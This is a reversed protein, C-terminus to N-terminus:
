TPLELVWDGCYPDGRMMCKDGPRFVLKPNVAKYAAEFYAGCPPVCDLAAGMEKTRLPWPCGTVRGLVKTPTAEIVEVQVEPGLMVVTATTVANAAAKADDAPLGLADVLQKVGPGAAGWLQTVMEKHKEPGLAAQTAADMATIMGTLARTAITWRMEAPVKEVMNKIEEAM